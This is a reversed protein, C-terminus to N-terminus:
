GSNKLCLVFQTNQPKGQYGKDMAVYSREAALNKWSSARCLCQSIMQELFM